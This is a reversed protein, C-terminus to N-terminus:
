FNFSLSFNINRAFPYSTGREQKVTSFTAIDNMYAMIKLSSFGIRKVFQWDRFDYGVNITSLTLQNNKMLFRSTPKTYSADAIDKFYAKDGPQKWRDSLYRRDVNNLINANEVKDVLTTNYYDGGMEYSCIANLIFGKWEFNMGFTGHAKPRSDGIVTQDNTDWILTREGNPRIFIEKGTQPDIGASRVGWIATLSRGEVYRASPRSVQDRIETNYNYYEYNSDEEKQADLQENYKKMADSIKKIKNKNSALTFTLNLYSRTEPFNFIRYSLNIDFGKNEIDGINETYSTFGISPAVTLQSISNKTTSFYYNFTMDLKDWLNLDFGINKDHKSQWQLTSNPFAQLYAGITEGYYYNEDYGYVALAQYANFNQSGSYGISARIKMLRLANGILNDRVFKENHLNWGAGISWFTGWRRDRGFQSSDTARISADLMYRDNYSYNFIGLFSLERSKSEGASPKDNDRYGKAFYLFDVDDPFGYATFSFSEDQSTQFSTGINYFFIHKGKVEHSYTLNLDGGLSFSEDYGKTYSGKEDNEVNEFDTLYPSRFADSGTTNKTFNFRGVLRLAPLITWDINLNNTIETYHQRDYAKWQDDWLPNYDNGNLSLFKKVLMGNEDTKRWYPNQAAYYAFSHNPDAQKNYTIMLNNQIALEKTRYGLTINGSLTKRESEKMAGDIQNYSVNFSYLYNENGGDVALTHKQGVGTRLPESLWYTNVGRLVERYLEDYVLEQEMDMDPNAGRDYVQGSFVEAQLKESANCLNYSSLDPIELSVNGNYYVQLKGPEPRKTEVIVVGNAAKSGYIAKASADKLVTVSRILNIDLDLVTQLSSEFGNLIFLPQNPNGTYQGTVDPFNSTGNLELTPMVNPNSGAALNTVQFFSPELLQLSQIVNTNGAKALDEQKFSSISGTYSSAKRDVVGTVVVEDIEASEETMVIQLETRGQIPVEQTKMGIFSLILTCNTNPVTLKFEGKENTSIGMSTGKILVTAGPVPHGKTDKVIGHVETSQLVQASTNKQVIIQRDNIHWTNKGDSFLQKLVEEITGSQVNLNVRRNLDINKDAYFFVYGSEKEINQLVESLTQNEIQFTFTRQQAYCEEAMCHSLQLCLLLTTLRLMLRWKKLKFQYNETKKFKKMCKRHIQNFM